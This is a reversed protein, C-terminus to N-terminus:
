QKFFKQNLPQLHQRPSPPRLQHSRRAQLHGASPPSQQAPRNQLLPQNPVRHRPTKSIIFKVSKQKLWLFRKEKKKRFVGIDAMEANPVSMSLRYIYCLFEQFADFHPLKSLLCIAKNNYVKHDTHFYQDSVGTYLNLKQMQRKSLKERYNSIEEYFSLVAGYSNTGVDNTLVFTSFVPLPQGASPPWSELLAGRPLCFKTIHQMAGTTALESCDSKPPIGESQGQVQGESEYNFLLKPPYSITDVKRFTKMFSLLVKTNLLSTSLPKSLLHYNHPATEGFKPMLVQIDTIVPTNMPSTAELKKFMIYSEGSLLAPLRQHYTEKLITVRRADTWYDPLREKEPYWVGINCIPLEDPERKVCLYLCDYLNTGTCLNGLEESPTKSICKWGKPIREEQSANIICLNTIPLQPEPESSRDSPDANLEEAELREAQAQDYGAVLFNSCLSQM